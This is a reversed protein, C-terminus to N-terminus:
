EEDENGPYNPDKEPNYINRKRKYKYVYQQNEHRSELRQSYWSEATKELGRSSFYAIVMTVLVTELIPLYADRLHFHSDFNGDFIASIIFFLLTFILLGPRVIQKYKSERPPCENCSFVKEEQYEDPTTNNM